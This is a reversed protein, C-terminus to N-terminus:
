TDNKVLELFKNYDRIYDKEIYNESALVLLVCDPSFNRMERWVLGEILLGKNPKNLKIEEKKKGNDVIFNCSGKVALVIQKLDVHAHFGRAVGKKTDFIYYVRKIKFPFNIDQEISVLSGREDGIIKLDFLKYKTM